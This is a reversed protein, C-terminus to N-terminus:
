NLHINDCYSIGVSEVVLDLTRCSVHQHHGTIDTGKSSNFFDFFKTIPQLNLRAWMFDNDGPVM